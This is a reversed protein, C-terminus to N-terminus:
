PATPACLCHACGARALQPAVAYAARSSSSPRPTAPWAWPPWFTPRAARPSPSSPPPTATHPGPPCNRSAPRRRLGRGGNAVGGVRRQRGGRRSACMCCGWTPPARTMPQVAARTPWCPTRQGCPRLPRDAAAKTPTSSAPWACFPRSPYFPSTPAPLCRSPGAREGARERGGARGAASARKVEAQGARRPVGLVRYLRTGDDLDTYPDHSAPM